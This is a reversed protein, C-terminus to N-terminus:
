PCVITEDVKACQISAHVRAAFSGAHQEPVPRDFSIDQQYFLVHDVETCRVPTQIGHTAAIAHQEPMADQADGAESEM